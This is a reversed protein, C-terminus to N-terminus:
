LQLFSSVHITSFHSNEMIHNLIEISDDIMVVHKEDKILFKQHIKRLVDLKENNEKVFFIDDVDIDYNGSIYSQKQMSEENSLSRSIVFDRCGNSFRDSILKRFVEIPEGKYVWHDKLYNKWDNEMLGHNYEGVEYPFLVGDIDFVLTTNKDYILNKMTDKM